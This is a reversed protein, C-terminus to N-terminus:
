KTFAEIAEADGYYVWKGDAISGTDFLQNNVANTAEEKTEYLIATISVRSTIAGKYAYIGGVAEDPVFAPDSVSYGANTMKTKAADLSAPTCSTLALGLTCVVLLLAVLRLTNKM